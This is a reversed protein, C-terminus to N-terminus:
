TWAPLGDVLVRASISELADLNRYHCPDPKSTSYRKAAYARRGMDM